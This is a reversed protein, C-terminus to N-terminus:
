AANGSPDEESVFLILAVDDIGVINGSVASASTASPNDESVVLSFSTSSVSTCSDTGCGETSSCSGSVGAESAFGIGGRSSRCAAAPPFLPAVDM